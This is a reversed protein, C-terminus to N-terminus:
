RKQSSVGHIAHYSCKVLQAAEEITISTDRIM